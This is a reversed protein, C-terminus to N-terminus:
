SGLEALKENVIENIKKEWEAAYTPVADPGAQFLNSWSYPNDEVDHVWTWFDKYGALWKDLDPQSNEINDLIEQLGDIYANGNADHLLKNVETWVEPYDAVPFQVLHTMPEGNAIQQTRRANFIKIRELWGDKGFTM